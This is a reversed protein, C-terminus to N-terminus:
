YIGGGGSEKTENNSILCNTVNILSEFSYIGGGREAINDLIECNNISTSNAKYYYIGGGDDDAKNKIIICNIITPSSFECYIGGGDNAYGNQVTFGSLVSQADEEYEFTVVSGNQSGDIITAAVVNPDDPDTSKVTIAKGFFNINEYYTGPHVIIEDENKAVDIAMQISTFDGSEDLAVIINSPSFPGAYIIEWRPPIPDAIQHWMMFNHVLLAGELRAGECIIFQYYPALITGYLQSDKFMEIMPSPTNHCYKNFGLLTFNQPTGNKNISADKELRVGHTSQNSYLFITVPGSVKLQAGEELDLDQLFYIGSPLTYSRNKLVKLRAALIEGSSSNITYYYQAGGLDLWLRSNSTTHEIINNNDNYDIYRINKSIDFFQNWIERYDDRKTRQIVPGEFIINRYFPDSIITDVTQLAYSSDKGDILGRLNITGFDNHVYVAGEIYSQSWWLSYNGPAGLELMSTPQIHDGLIQSPNLIEAALSHHVYVTMFALIATLSFIINVALVLGKAKIVKEKM